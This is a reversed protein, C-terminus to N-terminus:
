YQKHLNNSRPRVNDNFVAPRFQAFLMDVFQNLSIPCKFIEQVVTQDFVQVYVLLVITVNGDVLRIYVQVRGVHLNFRERQEAHTGTEDRIGMM